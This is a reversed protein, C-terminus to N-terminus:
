LADGWKIKKKKQRNTLVPFSQLTSLPIRIENIDTLSKGGVDNSRPNPNTAVM